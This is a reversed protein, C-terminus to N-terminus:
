WGKWNDILEDGVGQKNMIKEHIKSFEEIPIRKNILFIKSLNKPLIGLYSSLMINNQQKQYSAEKTIEELNINKILLEKKNAGFNIIENNEDYALNDKLFTEYGHILNNELSRIITKKDAERFNQPFDKKDYSVTTYNEFIEEEMYFFPNSNRITENYKINIFKINSSINTEKSSTHFRILYGSNIKIASFMHRMKFIKKNNLLNDKPKYFINKNKLDKYIAM